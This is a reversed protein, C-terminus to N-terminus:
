ISSNFYENWLNTFDISAVMEMAGSNFFNRSSLLDIWSNFIFGFDFMRREPLIIEAAIKKPDAIKYEELSATPMVPNTLERIM